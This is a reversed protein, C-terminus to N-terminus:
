TSGDVVNLTASEIQSLDALRAFVLSNLKNLLTLRNARVEPREDMVLVRDFFRDVTPRLEALKLFAEQYEQRREFNLLTKYVAQYAEFLEREPGDSLLRTVVGTQGGYDNLEASKSLINRTRKAAQSLALFDQSDRVRELAQARLITDAPKAWGRFSNVVARVTDYRLKGVSQLYYEARERLFKAVRDVLNPTAPLGLGDDLVAKLLTLLDLGPFMEASLKIIANGRRRLGFPDSSGKPEHGVALGAAVDDIKDALSVVAGIVTRPCRDELGLPRYHDYIADAVEQPEKQARAYLGGVVGQLEPFEQVMQTTLDCKCLEITSLAHQFQAASVAGEAALLANMHDGIVQMRRTKDAYSGLEAQYVVQRLSPIRQRLPIKQDAKWFFEADSFRASLVREHGDRVLGSEDGERNLVTIFRPQLKGQQDEVAFYKQHDRMVTVLIERPLKLFRGEFTGLLARPWETSNVVWDELERDEVVRLHSGELLVKLEGRVRERRKEPEFEVQAHRLKKAYDEFSQVPIPARGASRHGFTANGAKVGFIELPIARAQDGEDFLALVWRIPRVFRPGSKAVWYMGKPFSLGTIVSPLIESLVEPAPRGQATKRLAVYEGKPTTVRLLDKVEAQNKAAFSEVARTPREQSDFAVKVPPGVIEEVTDPQQALMAPVYAVLRRPTSYTQLPSARTATENSAEAAPVGGSCDPLLRAERLAAKLREGLDRQAETLFRAPIEECGIEILLPSSPALHIPAASDASASRRSEPRRPKPTTENPAVSYQPWLVQLPPRWGGYKRRESLAAVSRPRQRM